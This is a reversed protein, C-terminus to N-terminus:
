ELSDLLEEVNHRRFRAATAEEDWELLDSIREMDTELVTGDSAVAGYDYAVRGMLNYTHIRERDLDHYVSAIDGLPGGAFDFIDAQRSLERTDVEDLGNEDILFSDDYEGVAEEPDSIYEVNSIRYTKGDYVQTLTAIDDVHDGIGHHIPNVVILANEDSGYDEDKMSISM